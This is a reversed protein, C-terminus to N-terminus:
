GTTPTIGLIKSVRRRRRGIHLDAALVLNGGCFAAFVLVAVTLRFNFELNRSEVFWLIVLVANEITMLVVFLFHESSSSSSSISSSSSPCSTSSSSSADVELSRSSERRKLSSHKEIAAQEKM